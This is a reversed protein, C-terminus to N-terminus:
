KLIKKLSEIFKKWWGIDNKQKILCLFEVICNGKIDDDKVDNKEVTM